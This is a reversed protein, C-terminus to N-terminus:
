TAGEGLLAGVAFDAVAASHDDGAAALAVWVLLLEADPGHLERGERRVTLSARRLATEFRAAERETPWEAEWQLGQCLQRRTNFHSCSGM